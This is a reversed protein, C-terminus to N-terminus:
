PHWYGDGLEWGLWVGGGSTKLVKSTQCKRNKEKNNIKEEKAKANRKGENYQESGDSPMDSCSGIRLIAQESFFYM